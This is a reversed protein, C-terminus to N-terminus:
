RRTLAVILVALAIVAVAIMGAVVEFNAADRSVLLAAIGGALVMVLRLVM